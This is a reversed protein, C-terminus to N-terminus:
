STLERHRFAEAELVVRQRRYHGETTPHDRNEDEHQKGPYCLHKCSADPSAQEALRSRIEQAHHREGGKKESTTYTYIFTKIENDSTLQLMIRYNYCM